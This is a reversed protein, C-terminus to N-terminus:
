YQESQIMVDMKWNQMWPFKRSNGRDVACLLLYEWRLYDKRLKKFNPNQSSMVDIFEFNKLASPDQPLLGILAWTFPDNMGLITKPDVGLHSCPSSNAFEFDSDSLDFPGLTRLLQELKHGLAIFIDPADDSSIKWKLAINKIARKSKYIQYVSKTSKLDSNIWGLKRVDKILGIFESSRKQIELFENYESIKHIEIEGLFVFITRLTLYFNEILILDNENFTDPIILSIDLDSFFPNFRHGTKASHRISLFCKSFKFNFILDFVFRTVSLHFYRVALNFVKFSPRDFLHGLQLLIIDRSLRLKM